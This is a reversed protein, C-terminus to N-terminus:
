CTFVADCLSSWCLISISAPYPQSTLSDRFLEIVAQTTTCSSLLVSCYGACNYLLWMRLMHDAQDSVVHSLLLLCLVAALARPLRVSGALFPLLVTAMGDWHRLSLFEHPPLGDQVHPFYYSILIEWFCCKIAFALCFDLFSQCRSPVSCFSLLISLSLCFM